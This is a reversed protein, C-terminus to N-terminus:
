SYRIFIELAEKEKTRVAELAYLSDIPLAHNLLEKIFRGEGRKIAEMM